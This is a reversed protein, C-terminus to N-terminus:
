LMVTADDQKPQEVLIRTNGNQERVLLAMYIYIYIYTNM